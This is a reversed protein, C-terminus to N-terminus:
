HDSTLKGTTKHEVVEPKCTDLRIETAVLGGFDYADPVLSVARVNKKSAGVHM